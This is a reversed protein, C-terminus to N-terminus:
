YCLHPIHPSLLALLDSAYSYRAMQASLLILALATWGTHGIDHMRRATVAMTPIYAIMTFASALSEDVQFLLTM